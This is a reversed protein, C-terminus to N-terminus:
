KGLRPKKGGIVDCLDKVVNGAIEVFENVNTEGPYCTVIFGLMDDKIAYGSFYTSMNRFPPLSM